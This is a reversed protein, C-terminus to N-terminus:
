ELDNLFFAVELERSTTQCRERLHTNSHAQNLATQGSQLVLLLALGPFILSFRICM